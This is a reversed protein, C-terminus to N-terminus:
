LTGAEAKAGRAYADLTTVQNLNDQIVIEIFDDDAAANGFTGKKRIPIAPTFLVTSKLSDGASSTFFEVGGNSAFKIMENTTTIPRFEILNDDAKVRVLVGNPIPANLGMFNELKINGDSGYLILSTLIIDQELDAEIRYTAPSAPSANVNMDPSGGSDKLQEDFYEGSIGLQTPLSFGPEVSAITVHLNKSINGKNDSESVQAQLGTAKDTVFTKLAM